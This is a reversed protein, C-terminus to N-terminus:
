KKLEIVKAEMSKMAFSSINGTDGNMVDKWNTFTNTREAYNNFLVKKEEKSTNIAIMVTQKADYRFYVYLGDQPVYQMLKGTKLASSSKRYNALKKLYNFFDNEAETRGSAVFKNISDGEWGGPFDKRVEADTPNKFNKTLVEDGYYLHPIGRQTLLLTHAAKM